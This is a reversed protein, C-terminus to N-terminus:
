ALVVILLDIRDLASGGVAGAGFAPFRGRESQRRIMEGLKSVTATDDRAPCYGPRQFGPAVGLM